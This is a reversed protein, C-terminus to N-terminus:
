NKTGLVENKEIFHANKSTKVSLVWLNIETFWTAPQLYRIGFFTVM